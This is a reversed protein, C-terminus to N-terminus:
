PGNSGEGVHKMFRDYAKGYSEIEDIRGLIGEAMKTSLTDISLLENELGEDRLFTSFRICEDAMRRMRDLRTEKM